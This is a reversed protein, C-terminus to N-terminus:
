LRQLRSRVKRLEKSKADEWNALLGKAVKSALECSFVKEGLAGWKEKGFRSADGFVWLRTRDQLNTWFFGPQDKAM